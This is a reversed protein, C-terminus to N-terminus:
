CSGIVQCYGTGILCYSGDTDGSTCYPGQCSPNCLTECIACADVESPVYTSIFLATAGLGLTRCMREILRQNSV